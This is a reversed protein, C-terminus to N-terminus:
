DKIQKETALYAESAKAPDSNAFGHVVINGDEVNLKLLFVEARSPGRSPLHRVANAWSRLVTRVRLQDVLAHLESKLERDDMPCDPCLPRRELKAIASGMLLFFRRWEDM